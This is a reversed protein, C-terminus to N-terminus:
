LGRGRAREIAPGWEPNCEGLVEIDKPHVKFRDGPSLKGSARIKKGEFTRLDLDTRISYAHKGAGDEVSFFIGKIVCGTLVRPVPMSARSSIITVLSFVCSLLVCVLVRKM